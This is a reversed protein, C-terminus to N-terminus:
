KSDNKVIKITKKNSKSLIELYYIGDALGSLNIQYSNNNLIYQNLEINYLCKGLSNYIRFGTIDPSLDDSMSVTFFGQTPNPSVSIFCSQIEKEVNTAKDVIIVSDLAYGCYNSASVFYLGPLTISINTGSDIISEQNMYYWCYSSTDSGYAVITIPFSLSVITDALINVAPYSREFISITDMSSCYSDDVQISYVGPENIKLINSTDNILNIENLFWAYNLTDSFSVSLLITDSPCLIVDPFADIQVPPKERLRIALSDSFTPCRTNKNLDVHYIGSDRIWIDASYNSILLENNKFWDYNDVYDVECEIKISDGKCIFDKESFMSANFQPCLNINATDRFSAIFFDEMNNGSNNNLTDTDFNFQQSNYDGTLYINNDDSLDIDLVYEMNDGGFSTAWQPFGIENFKILYIDQLGKSKLEFRDFEITDHFMSTLYLNNEIDTTIGGFTRYALASRNKDYSNYTRSSILSGTSDYKLIFINMYSRDSYISDEGLKETGYIGGLVYVNGTMDVAVDSAESTSNDTLIGSKIWKFNLNKDLKAVFERLASAGELDYILSGFNAQNPSYAGAIYLNNFEDDQISYVYDAGLGGATNVSMVEGNGNFKAIFIDSDYLENELTINDISMGNSFAGSLYIFDTNDVYISKIDDLMYTKVWQLIGDKNFKTFFTNKGEELYSVGFKVYNWYSGIAYLNGETDIAIDIIKTDNAGETSFLWLVIGLSNYKVIYVGETSM